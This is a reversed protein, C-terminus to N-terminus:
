TLDRPVTFNVVTGTGYQLATWDVIDFDMVTTACTPYAYFRDHEPTESLLREAFEAIGPNHGLMLVCAASEKRLESLMEESTPLYLRREFRSPVDFGLRDFTERTRKASSSLVADPVYGNERLWNGMAEASNQGRTNLPRDHDPGPQDWASKAHRMLILRKTM